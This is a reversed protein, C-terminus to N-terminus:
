YKSKNVVTHFYYEFIIKCVIFFQLYNNANMFFYLYIMYEKVFDFFIILWFTRKSLGFLLVGIIRYITFYLINADIKFFFFLLLYSFSDCIKDLLQYHFTKFCNNINKLIFEGNEINHLINHIKAPVNDILDLIFLILPLLLYQHTIIFNNRYFSLVYFICLTLITRIFMGVNIYIKCKNTLLKQTNKNYGNQKIALDKYNHNLSVM